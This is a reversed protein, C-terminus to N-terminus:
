DINFLKKFDKIQNNRGVDQGAIYSHLIAKMIIRWQDLSLDIDKEDLERLVPCVQESYSTFAGKKFIWGHEYKYWDKGYQFELKLM